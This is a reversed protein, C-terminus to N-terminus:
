LAPSFGFSLLLVEASQAPDEPLSSHQPGTILFVEIERYSRFLIYLLLYLFIFMKHTPNLMM